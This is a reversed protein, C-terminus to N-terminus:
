SSKHSVWEPVSVRKGGVSIFPGPVSLGVAKSVPNFVVSRFCRTVIKRGSTDRDQRILKCKESLCRCAKRAGDFFECIMREVRSKGFSRHNLTSMNLKYGLYNGKGWNLV